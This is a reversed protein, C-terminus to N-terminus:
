ESTEGLLSFPLVFFGPYQTLLEEPTTHLLEQNNAKVYYKYETSAAGWKKKFNYVGIQTHWTGGWNWLRYGKTIADTMAKYLILAMPQYPRFKSLTVPTFYEVTQKYYFLLLAAIPKDNLSAVYINYSDSAKFYKPIMSFFRKSKSNGNVISMNEQHTNFLFDFASNDINVEINHQTAKKINRRASSNLLNLLTGKNSLCTSFDTIQSIRSDTYHHEIEISDKQLPNSIMTAAAISHGSSIENYKQQLLKQATLTKALISGHSGYFPLSNVVKGYKGSAIMLPLAGTIIGKEICLWYAVECGLYNSILDMYAPTHYLLAFNTSELFQTYAHYDAKTLQKLETNAPYDMPKSAEVLISVAFTKM